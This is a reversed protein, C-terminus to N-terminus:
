KHRGWGVIKTCQHMTSTPPLTRTTRHTTSFQGLLMNTSKFVVKMKETTVNARIIMLVQFSSRSFVNSSVSLSAPFLLPKRSPVHRALKIFHSIWCLISRCTSRCLMNRVYRVRFTKPVVAPTSNNPAELALRKELRSLVSVTKRHSKVIVVSLSRSRALEHGLPHNDTYVPACISSSLLPERNIQPYHLAFCPPM